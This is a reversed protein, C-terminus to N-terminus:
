IQLAVSTFRDRRRFYDRRASPYAKPRPRPCFGLLKGCAAVWPRREVPLGYYVENPTRFGLRLRPRNNLTAAIATCQRQTNPM